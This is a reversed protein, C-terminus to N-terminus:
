LEGHKFEEEYQRYAQMKQWSELRKFAAIAAGDAAFMVDSIAGGMIEVERGLAKNVARKLLDGDGHNTMIVAVDIDEPPTSEEDKSNERRM